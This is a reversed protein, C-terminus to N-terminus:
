QVCGKFAAGIAGSTNAITDFVVRSRDSERVAGVEIGEFYRVGDGEDNM